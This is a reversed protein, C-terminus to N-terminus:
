ARNGLATLLGRAAAEVLDLVDEFGEPGGSYPDPVERRGLEPAFELFMRVRDRHAPPAIELLRWYIREDMALLLDFREFDSATVKRARLDRMDIGRRAAAAISREDPPSDTQYAHTGASDAEIPSGAAERQVLDRFVAEATPSRCINGLCVFLVRQTLRAQAAAALWGTNRDGADNGGDVRRVFHPYFPGWAGLRLRSRYETGPRDRRATRPVLGAFRRDFTRHGCLPLFRRGCAGHARHRTRSLADMLLQRNVAYTAVHRDLVETEDMAALAVHQSLTPPVLFLNSAYRRLVDIQASPVVCWGLRWGTMCWYKSFTNVVIADPDTELMSHAPAGFTIGHYTEDSLIRIGRERCVSAIAAQERRDLMTGTPNSPSTLILGAPAPALAAIMEATPQFRSEATCDLEVPELGLAHLVNRHAPYGPRALAIRTNRAFLASLVLVIAASAGMTLLVRSPDIALGHRERYLRSIREALAASEWYGQPAEVLARRGTEIAAAPAGASPQGVEMHIVPLGRRERENAIRNLEVAYFPTVRGAAENM